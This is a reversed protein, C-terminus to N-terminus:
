LKLYNKILQNYLTLIRLQLPNNTLFGVGDIERVPLVKPSTGTLFAASFSSLEAFHIKRETLPIQHNRCIEIVCNRTIGPLVLAEPPTIVQNDRVFFINSRSGETILEQENILLVEYISNEAILQNAQARLPLNTIKANPNPRGARLTQLEVGDCYMEPTPYSHPIFFAVLGNNDKSQDLTFVLKVNGTEIKNALTLKSIMAKATGPDFNQQVGALRASRNMRELHKELFLPVSDMLRIVEYISQKTLLASFDFNACEWLQNAIVLYKGRYEM